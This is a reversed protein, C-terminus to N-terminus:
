RHLTLNMLGLAFPRSIRVETSPDVELGLVQLTFTGLLLMPSDFVLATVPAERGLLRVYVLAYRAVVEGKDALTVKTEELPKLNLEEAIANSVVMYSAGTDVLFEVDKTRTRAPDSVNARIKVYGMMMAGGVQM